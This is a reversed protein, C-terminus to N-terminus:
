CRAWGRKFGRCGPNTAGFSVPNAVMESCWNYRGSCGCRGILKFFVKRTIDSDLNCNSQWTAPAGFNRHSRFPASRCFNTARLKGFTEFRSPPLLELPLKSGLRILTAPATNLCFQCRNNKSIFWIHVLAESLYVRPAHARTADPACSPALNEDADASAPAGPWPRRRRRRAGADASFKAFKRLEGKKM